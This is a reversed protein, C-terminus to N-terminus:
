QALDTVQLPALKSVSTNDAPGSMYGHGTISTFTTGATTPFPSPGVDNAIYSTIVVDPGTTTAGKLRVIFDVGNTSTTAEVSNVRVRMSQYEMARPGGIALDSLLVVRAVPITAVGMKVPPKSLAIQEFGRYQTYSGTVTVKEGLAVGTPASGVFVYIGAWSNATPDQIFYGHTVGATKQGTVIGSVTVIQGFPVHGPAFPNRVTPISLEAVSADEGAPADVEADTVPDGSSSGGDTGPRLPGGGDIGGTGVSTSSCAGAVVAAAYALWIGLRRRAAM